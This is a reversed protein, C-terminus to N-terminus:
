DGNYMCMLHSVRLFLLTLPDSVRGKSVILLLDVRVHICDPQWKLGRCESLIVADEKNFHLSRLDCLLL